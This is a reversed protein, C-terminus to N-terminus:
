VKVTKRNIGYDRLKNAVATHSLGLRKSLQRSSPYAPYLKRLLTAEFRKMAQELSGEFDSELYGLDHTFTPLQLHEVCLQDDDLLSVARYIANELQRVNGPWPYQQLFALCQPSLAPTVHGNQQAYKQIFHEALPGIDAQRDRLPAIELTLVNIRYYLDERFIGEQVMAPLDKQTAAIIRVNVKVENEDGVKRFTGDQLFRLLKTQLQTSMEGVEDLFVTGGDAQELVGRKPSINDEYGAYGFLESEAVDDPLSACSLAIFPKVSRSSAYHCARALLEKGTGTEGTILIPAELQSMKRAERVVRRMATSFNHITAFSEQGYRRFASVQQGLRSQSKINIVAGALVDGEGGQPVSIPLIDAIFDEGAVNVRTTQGLVEKSELWRTFNFGKLLNNINDGLVEKNTLQLDRCAADNCLRVYGKADISIVGDPLASLLTNLENHERESPLFPTTRVDEVGDILRISPMIKQFQEFEIEPFSVYMRSNHSDVEIGKLDVQYNVLINLIEQAIGIRDACHIDLRM